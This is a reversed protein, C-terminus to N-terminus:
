VEAIYVMDLGKSLESLIGQLSIIDSFFSDASPLGQSTLITSPKVILVLFRLIYRGYSLYLVHVYSIEIM